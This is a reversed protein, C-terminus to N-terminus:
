AHVPMKFHSTFTELGLAMTKLNNAAETIEKVALSNVGAMAAVENMHNKIEASSASQERLSASIQTVSEIVKGSSAQIKLMAEGAESAMSVGEAIQAEGEGMSRVASQTGGQVANIMVVIEQASKTTREALKRVEDAVVAFGRGQEGARAAEIAANLALLNTQDAIERIVSVVASIEKSHVGLSRILRTSEGFGDAIMNIESIASQVKNSGDGSLSGSEEAMGRAADSTGTISVIKSTLKEAFDATVAAAKSQKDSFASVTTTAVSMAQADKSVNKAATQIQSITGRLAEQMKKMAVLLSTNDGTRASIHFSLDGEAIQRAIKAALAPEGGLQTMVDRIIWQAVLLGLVLCFGIISLAMTNKANIVEAAKKEYTAAQATTKTVLDDIAARHENYKQELVAQVTAIETADGAQLAPILRKQQIDIFEKGPKYSTNIVLNKIESDALDKSWFERRDDFDKALAKSKEILAPLKAKDGTVMQFTVLYSEILYEPPPLIDALLDKQQVIKQYIPGNVKVQDITMLSYIASGIFGATFVSVLLFLKQRLSLQNM